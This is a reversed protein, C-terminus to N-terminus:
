LLIYTHFNSNEMDAKVQAMFAKIEDDSLNTFMNMKRLLGETAGVSKEFIRVGYAGTRKGKL